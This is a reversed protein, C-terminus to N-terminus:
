LVKGVVEETVEGVTEGAVESTLLMPTTPLVNVEAQIVLLCVMIPGEENPVEVIAPEVLLALM